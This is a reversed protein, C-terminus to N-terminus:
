AQIRQMMEKFESLEIVGDGNLDVENIVQQWLSDDESSGGMIARIEDSSITGSGDRDFTNFAFELNQMSVLRHRDTCSKIFETFDIFNSNDSDVNALVEDVCAEALELNSMKMFESLLEQRSIRGDGDKDLIQFSFQLDRLDQQSVAHMALFTLVADKLKSSATFAKLRCLAESVPEGGTMTRSSTIWPHQLAEEASIRDIPNIELMRKLLSLADDPIDKTYATTVDFPSLRVYKMIESENCGPYPPRGTLMIFLIIGASWIDVLENYTRRHVEPAQYYASGYGGKLQIGFAKITSSGFDAVKIDFSDGKTVLLINEPKLDRHIVNQNHCYCISSLLQFMVKAADSTTFKTLKVLRDFLEGGECYEMLIYYHYEDQILDYCRLINPHDLVRLIELEQIRHNEKTEGKSKKPKMLIKLARFQGTPKHLCKKVVGFSGEGLKELIEYDRELSNNMVSPRAMKSPSISLQRTSSQKPLGDDPDISISALEDAPAVALQPKIKFQSCGCGM